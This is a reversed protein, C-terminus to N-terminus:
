LALRVTPDSKVEFGLSRCMALMGTNETLADGSIAKLGESRAYEIIMQMLAWGFGRGRSISRSLIAYEDTEYARCQLGADTEARHCIQESKKSGIAFERNLCIM